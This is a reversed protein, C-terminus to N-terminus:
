LGLEIRREHIANGLKRFAASPEGQNKAPAKDLLQEYLTEWWARHDPQSRHKIWYSRIRPWAEIFDKKPVISFLEKPRDCRSLLAVMRQPFRPDLPNQLVQHTKELEVANLDWFYKAVNM